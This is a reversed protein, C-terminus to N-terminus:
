TLKGSPLIPYAECVSLFIVMSIVMSADHLSHWRVDEGKGRHRSSFTAKQHHYQHSKPTNWPSSLWIPFLTPCLSCSKPESLPSTFELDSIYNISSLVMTKSDNVVVTPPARNENLWYSMHPIIFM